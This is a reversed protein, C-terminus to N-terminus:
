AAAKRAQRYDHMYGRHARLCPGCPNGDARMHRKFGRNTGCADPNFGRRILGLKKKVEYERSAAANAAKCPQCAPVGADLHHRYWRLTGCEAANFAPAPQTSIPRQPVLTLATDADHNTGKYVYAM